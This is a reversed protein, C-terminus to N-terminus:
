YKVLSKTENGLSDPHIGGLETVKAWSVFLSERDRAQKAMKWHLLGSVFKRLKFGPVLLGDFSGHPQTWGTDTRIFPPLAFWVNPRSRM